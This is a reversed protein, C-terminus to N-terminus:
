SNKVIFVTIYWFLTKKRGVLSILRKVTRAGIPLRVRRFSDAVVAMHFYYSVAYITLQMGQLPATERRKMVPWVVSKQGILLPLM